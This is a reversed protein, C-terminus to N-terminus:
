PATFSPNITRIKELSATREEDPLEKLAKRVLDPKRFSSEYVLFRYLTKGEADTINANPKHMMRRVYREWEGPLVMESNIGRSIVHCASCKDQFLKYAQQQEPPYKSVDITKPGADLKKLREEDNTAQEARAWALLVLGGAVVALAYPVLKGRM